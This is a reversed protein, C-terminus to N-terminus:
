GTPFKDGQQIFEIRNGFPDNTFFRRVEPISDDPVVNLGAEGITQKTAELDEVIFAPHAKKAPAFDPKEVGLHVTIGQGEFWCGGRSALPGPKEIESLGLVEGYFWRAQSEEDPPMALQLHELGVIQIPM